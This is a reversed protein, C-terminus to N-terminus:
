PLPEERRASRNSGATLFRQKQLPLSQETSSVILECHNKPVVSPSATQSQKPFSYVVECHRKKDTMALSAFCDRLQCERTPAFLHSQKPFSYVVECHRLFPRFSSGAPVHWSTAALEKRDRRPIEHQTVALVEKKDSRPAFRRLLGGRKGSRAFRLLRLVTFLLVAESVFIRGRLSSSFSSV